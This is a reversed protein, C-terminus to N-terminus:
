ARWGWLAASLAFLKSFVGWFGSRKFAERRSLLEPSSLLAAGVGVMLLKYTAGGGGGGGTLTTTVVERADSGWPIPPGDESTLSGVVTWTKANGSYDRIGDTTSDFFPYWSDVSAFKVPRICRMENLLEAATLAVTWFKVAALRGNFLESGADGLQINTIANTNTGNGTIDLVGNLYITAQGGSSVVM